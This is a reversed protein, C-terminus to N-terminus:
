LTSLVRRQAIIQDFEKIIRMFPAPLKGQVFELITQPIEKYYAAAIAGAMSIITDSDPLGEKGHLFTNAGLLGEATFLTMQTDDTIHGGTEEPYARIGDAGFVTHIKEIRMFEVPHGLADGAAGGLLCGRFHEATRRHPKPTETNATPM